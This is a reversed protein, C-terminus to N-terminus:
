IHILSLYDKRLKVELANDDINRKVTRRELYLDVGTVTAAGILIPACATLLQSSTILTLVVLLPKTLTRLRYFLWTM